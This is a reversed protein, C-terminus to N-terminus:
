FWCVRHGGLVSSEQALNVKINHLQITLFRNHVVLNPGEQNAM